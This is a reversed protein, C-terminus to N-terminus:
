PCTIGARKACLLMVPASRVQQEQSQSLFTKLALEYVKRDWQSLETWRAMLPSFRHPERGDVAAAMMPKEEDQNWMLRLWTNAVRTMDEDTFVVGRRAAEVALSMSLAAHSTDEYGSNGPQGYDIWDWYHWRYANDEEDLELHNRFYRVMQEARPAMLPHAGKLDKLVLWARALALGMTVMVAVLTITFMM